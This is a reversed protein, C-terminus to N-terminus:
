PVRVVFARGSYLDVSCNLLCTPILYASGASLKRNKSSYNLNGEGEIVVLLKPGSWSDFDCRGATGMLVRFEEAPTQYEIWGDFVESSTVHKPISPKYDVISTLTEKDQYKRTLGARVVNDSNSMCEVLDGSVYSHITNAPTFIAKGCQLSCYNLMYVLWASAEGRGFEEILEAFLMDDMSPNTISELHSNAFQEAKNLSLILKHAKKLLDENELFESLIDSLVERDAAVKRIQELTRWGSLYTFDNLAIAIEPKHNADPYHEPDKNHLKEATEKDPHVQLSLPKAISLVKFLFPLENNFRNCVREGLIELSYNRILEDLTAKNISTIASGSTHTGFWLEAYPEDDKIAQNILRTIFSQKGCKGWPYNKVIGQLEIPESIPSELM